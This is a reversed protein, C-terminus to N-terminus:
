RQLALLWFATHARSCSASCRNGLLTCPSSPRRPPAGAKAQAAEKEPLTEAKVVEMIAHEELSVAVVGEGVRREKELSFPDNDTSGVEKEQIGVAKDDDMNADGNVALANLELLDGRIEMAQQNPRDHNCPLLLNSWEALCVFWLVFLAIHQYLCLIVDFM